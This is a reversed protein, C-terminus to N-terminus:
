KVEKIREIYGGFNNANKEYVSQVAAKFADMDLDEVPTIKVGNDILEQRQASEMEQNLARQKVAHEKGLKIIIEQIDNPLADFKEKSMMLVASAYYIGTESLFSQVEYGKTSAIVGLSNDMGDVVGQQISTYVEPWAIPTPDAGLAKYTDVFVENEITRMKLGKMDDPSIIEKKNNTFNRYGNEWLGLGKIGSNEMQALLEDGIESDLTKYVHELDRFIFPMELAGLNPVFNGVVGSTIVAMDLTGLSVQETMDREGGLQGGGFIEIKM